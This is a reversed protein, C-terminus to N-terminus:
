FNQTANLFSDKTTCTNIKKTLLHIHYSLPIVKKQNLLVLIGFHLVLVFGYKKPDSKNCLM